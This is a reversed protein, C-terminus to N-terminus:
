QVGLGENTDQVDDHRLIEGGARDLASNIADRAIGQEGKQALLEKQGQLKQANQAAGAQIKATAPNSQQLEEKMQPTMDKILDFRNPWGSAELWMLVIQTLDLYKGQIQFQQAIQPQLFIQTLLPLAQAMVRKAAMRTGALATFKMKGTKFGLEDVKFDQGLEEGVIERVQSLPLYRTNLEDLQYLWPIFVQQIFRDLPGQLRSATAGTFANVGTGTRTISSKGGAGPVSGQMTLANAGDAAESENESNQLFAFIEAVPLRPMELPQIADRVAQNPKTKVKIFGGKRFRQNQTAVNSDEDVAYPPDLLLQLLALGGNTVGQSLRQDQAVIKGVGLGWFARIRNFWNCSFFPIVGYPNERNQIVIKNNLTTIVKYNDWRELLLLGQASPDQTTQKWGPEGQGAISPSGTGNNDMVGLVAPDEKPTEFWSRIAEESHKALREYEPDQRMELLDALTAYSKDIVHKAKRIDPLRLGSDVLVSRIERNEFWPKLVRKKPLPQEEFEDSEDTHVTIQEGLPGVQNIPANKRVFTFDKVEEWKMGWKWIGTGHLIDQFLGNSVETEFEMDELQYALVATRAKVTDGSTGPRQLAVFPPSELFLGEQMAPHISNVHRSIIYRQVNPQMVTTQEWVKFVRPSDYLIDIEDWRENWQQGAIWSEDMQADQNVLALAADDEIEEPTREDKLEILENPNGEQVIQAM